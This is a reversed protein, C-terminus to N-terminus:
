TLCDEGTDRRVTVTIRRRQARSFCARVRAAHLDDATPPLLVDLRAGPGATREEGCVIEVLYPTLAGTREVLARGSGTVVVTRAHPPPPDPPTTPGLGRSHGLAALTASVAQRIMQVGELVRIPARVAFETDLTMAFEILDLSDAGLEDALSVHPLSVQVRAVQISQKIGQAHVRVAASTTASIASHPKQEHRRRPLTSPSM